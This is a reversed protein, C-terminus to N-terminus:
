HGLGAGRPARRDSRVVESIDSWALQFEGKRRAVALGKEDITVTDLGRIAMLILPPSAFAAFGLFGPLVLQAVPVTSLEWFYAIALVAGWGLALRLLVRRYTTPDPSFLLPKAVGFRVM